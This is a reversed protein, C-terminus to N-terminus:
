NLWNKLMNHQFLTLMKILPMLLFIKYKLSEPFLYFKASKNTNSNNKLVKISLKYVKAPKSDQKKLFNISLNFIPNIILIMKIILTKLLLINKRHFESDKGPMKITQPLPFNEKIKQRLIIKYLYQVM